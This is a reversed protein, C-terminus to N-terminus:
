MQRDLIGKIRGVTEEVSEGEEFGLVPKGWERTQAAVREIEGGPAAHAVFVVKALAAVLDNRKRATERTARRVKGDFASVVVLRGEEFPQKWDKPIRMGELGRAPCIVVPQKGRLLLRLCEKEMPSHFGGIVPVEDKRLGRALDYSKLIVDGTCRISCLFGLFDWGFLGSDGLVILRPIGTKELTLSQISPQFPKSRSM